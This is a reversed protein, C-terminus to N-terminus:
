DRPKPPGWNARVYVVPFGLRKLNRYSPNPKDALEEDTETAIWRAGLARADAVRRAILASQAGRGRHDPLTSAFTLEAFREGEVDSLFLAGTAVPTDGDKAVYLTWRERGVLGELWPAFAPPLGFNEVLIGAWAESMREREEGALDGDVRVIRLDTRSPVDARAPGLHKAWGRLRIVGREGAAARFAESEMHPLLQVMWRRVAAERYHAAARDLTAEAAGAAAPGDDLGVAMVRNFMPHDHGGATLYRAGGHRHLRLGERSALEPPVADFLDDYLRAEVTELLRELDADTPLTM